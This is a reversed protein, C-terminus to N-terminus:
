HIKRLGPASFYVLGAFALMLMASILVTPPEGIATAASGALLSGIPMLGFFSLSYISMVRGRLGDPVIGQVTANALNIFFMFSYGLALLALMSMPLWRLFSFIILFLPFAFSGLTLLKGRMRMGSLTALTLAGFLAGVGRSSQLLGTTTADGGLISV